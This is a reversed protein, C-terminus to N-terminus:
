WNRRRFSSSRVSLAPPSWPWYTWLALRVYSALVWRVASSVRRWALMARVTHLLAGAWIMVVALHVGTLAAGWAGETTGAHSRIGEAAIVVGLPVLAWSGRTSVALAALLGAAEALLTLGAKGDWAPALSEADIVRLAILGAVGVLAIVLGAPVWARVPPLTPREALATSTSRQAVLGGVAIALGAFLMWRLAAEIWAPRDKASAPVGATLAVGVAFRFEQEVQDGDSGTVRWRVTYSGSHLQEVPSATVFRGAQALSAPGVPVVRGAQDLLVIADQGITVPENFLLTIVEPSTGVATQVAPETFLLTPHAQAIGAAPGILMLATVVSGVLCRRLGIV